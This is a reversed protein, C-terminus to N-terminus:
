KSISHLIDDIVAATPSAIYSVLDVGNCVFIIFTVITVVVTVYFTITASEVTDFDYKNDKNEMIPYAKKMILYEIIGVLLTVFCGFGNRAIHYRAMEEILYKSTVCFKNCLDDIILNIESTM